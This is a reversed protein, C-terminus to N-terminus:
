DIKYQQNKLINQDCKGISRRVKLSIREDLVHKSLLSRHNVAQPTPWMMHGRQKGKAYVINQFYNECEQCNLQVLMSKDLLYHQLLHDFNNGGLQDQDKRRAPNPSYLHELQETEILSIINVQM